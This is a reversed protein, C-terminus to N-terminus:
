LNLKVKPVVTGDNGKNSAMGTIVPSRALTKAFEETVVESEGTIAVIFITKIQKTTVTVSDSYGHWTILTGEVTCIVGRDSIPTAWVNRADFRKKEYEGAKSLDAFVSSRVCFDQAMASNKLTPPPIVDTEIPTPRAVATGIAIGIALTVMPLALLLVLNRKM